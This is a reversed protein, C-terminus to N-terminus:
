RKELSFHEIREDQKLELFYIGNPLEYLDLQYNDLEGSMLLQGYSNYLTFNYGNFSELYVFRTTPNPYPNVFLNTEEVIQDICGGSKNSYIMTKELTSFITEEFLGSIQYRDDPSSNFVYYENETGPISDFLQFENDCNGKYIYYKIPHYIENESYNHNWELKLNGNLGIPYVQLFISSIFNSYDGIAGCQDQAAIRYKVYGNNANTILDTYENYSGALVSTLHEWSYGPESIYINFYDVPLRQITGQTEDQQSLWVLRNRGSANDFSVYQIDNKLPRGWFHLETIAQSECGSKYVTVSYHGSNDSVFLQQTIAGTNWIYSDYQFLPNPDLTVLSDACFITASLQPNFNPLPFNIQSITISSTGSICVNSLEVSYNGASNVM